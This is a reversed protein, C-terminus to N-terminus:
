WNGLAPNELYRIWIKPSYSIKNPPPNQGNSGKEFSFVANELYQVHGTHVSYSSAIFM